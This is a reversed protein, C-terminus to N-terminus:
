VQVKVGFQGADVTAVTWAASTAPNVEWIEVFTDFATSTVSFSTGEATAATTDKFVPRLDRTGSAEMAACTEVSMGLITAGSPVGLTALNGMHWRDVDTATESTVRKADETTLVIGSPMAENVLSYHTTGTSPTWDLDDGEGNPLLEVVLCQGFFDNVNAGTDDAVIVHDLRMSRIGNDVSFIFQDADAAATDATNVGTASVESVGNVKLEYAGAAPDITVKLEFTHWKSSWFPGVTALTTAGRKIDVYYRDDTDSVGTFSRVNVTLQSTSAKLIDIGAGQSSTAVSDFYWSWHLIWVDQDTFEPTTFKYSSGDLASGIRYGDTQAPTGQIGAMKREYYQDFATSTAANLEFGEIFRIAM